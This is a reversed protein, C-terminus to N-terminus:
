YITPTVRPVTSWAYRALTAAILPAPDVTADEPRAWVWADGVMRKRAAIVADDLAPQGRHALRGTTVDDYISGCAAAYQRGSVLVLPPVRRM